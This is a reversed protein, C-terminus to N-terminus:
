VLGMAAVGVAATLGLVLAIRWRIGPSGISIALGAKLLTNSVAALTVARVALDQPTADRMQAISLSIADMDTLGSVFSLPLLGKTLGLQPAAKVLFAIVAYLVAFKIATSLGLPNRLAVPDGHVKGPRRRWWVLAAYLVGPVAMLSLPLVLRQAFERNIFAIVVVVRPLMVTCAIIVALAYHQSLAPDTKSRRSFALTSATSSALGGFLSTAVIGAGTGLMRIAIYGAFGLGSILVVMLWTSFPNFADFPGMARNPVLPLIVGTIAVFQLTGRIDDQTFARTWAHLPQKSGVLVMTTAAVLVAGPLEQWYVLSGALVTLLTSAFTTGGPRAGPPANFKAVIQQTGVLLFVVALLVPSTQESAFAGVCGLMAWFTFTRVGGFDVDAAKASQDSWQRILGVLAGLCASAVIAILLPPM